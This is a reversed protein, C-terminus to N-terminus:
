VAQEVTLWVLCEECCGVRECLCVREVIDFICNEAVMRMRRADTGKAM